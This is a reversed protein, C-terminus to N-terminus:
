IDTLDPPTESLLITAGEEPFHRLKYYNNMVGMSAFSIQNIVVVVFFAVVFFGLVVVTLVALVVFTTRAAKGLLV